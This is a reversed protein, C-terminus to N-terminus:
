FHMFSNAKEQIVNLHIYLTIAELMKFIDWQIRKEIIVSIRCIDRQIAGRHM